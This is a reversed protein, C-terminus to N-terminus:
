DNGGGSLQPSYSLEISFIEEARRKSVPRNFSATVGDLQSLTRLVDTAREASGFIEFSGDIYTIRRFSVDKQEFLPKLLSWIYFSSATTQDIEQYTQLSRELQRVRDQKELAATLEDQRSEYSEQVSNLKISLYASSGALYLLAVIIAPLAVRWLPPLTRQQQSLFSGANPIVRLFGEEILTALEYQRQSKPESLGISVAFQEASTMLQTEKASRSLGQQNAVFLRGDPTIITAVENKKLSKGILYSEPIFVSGSPLKSTDFRWFVVDYGGTDSKVLIHAHSESADLKLAKKVLKKENMPYHKVWERYHKRGIVWVPRKGVKKTSGLPILDASHVRTSFYGILPSIAGNVLHTLKELLRSSSM